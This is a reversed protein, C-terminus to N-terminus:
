LRPRVKDCTQTAGFPSGSVMPVQITSQNKGMATDLKEVLGRCTAELVQLKAEMSDLRQCIAQSISVLMSKISTEQSIDMRARKRGPPDADTQHEEHNLDAVAIQVIEVLDQEAMM